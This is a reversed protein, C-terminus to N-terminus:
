LGIGLFTPALCATVFTSRLADTASATKQAETFHAQLLAKVDASRPDAPALGVLLAVFDDIAAPAQASSWHRANPQAPSVAADVVLQSVAACVNELGARYFLTPQNPLVPETAGRGYGDSPMGSVIAPVSGAGVKQGLVLTRGCVDSLQLRADLAACLHDRRTVAVVEGQAAHTGTDSLNTVIPSALLERVLTRWSLGSATFAAVVRQFEPDVTLCPASNAYECLKQAWAVPVAPHRALAAGFDDVSAVPAVLGQFQFIGKQAVLAADLQPGYFWSYTSSLVSRTPDLLRHCAYCAPDASHAADLGPTTPTATPDLGDVQMGTAVILAQNVTVRMQNSQNTPWNAFFGPTSFFGPRPTKLVLEPATRLTPLDFLRTTPESGVPARVTVMRWTTFDAPSLQVGKLTGGRQPCNVVGADTTIQHPPAAGYFLEMLNASTATGVLPDTNCAPNPFTLRGVDPDYFHLYSPSGADATDEFPIVGGDNRVVLPVKPNARAWDDIVKGNDDLHRADLYAYLQALAPTMMLRRTTFADTLPRGEGDLALVTRALSERANQVVLPVAAGPGLGQPPILDVFNAPSIQTQQFALSFFVRMKEEYQPLHMWGDILGALNRQDAAVAQVEADTPPLGVLLTKVKAVAARVSAAEFVQGADSAETPVGCAVFALVRQRDAESLTAGQPMRRASVDVVRAAAIRDYAAHESLRLTHRCYAYLSPFGEALYLRRSDLEALHAVLVATLRAQGRALDRLRALLQADTLRGLPLLPDETM